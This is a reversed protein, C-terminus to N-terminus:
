IKKFGMQFVGDSNYPLNEKTAFGANDHNLTLQHM